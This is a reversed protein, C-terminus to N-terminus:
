WEDPALLTDGEYEAPYPSDIAIAENGTTDSGYDDGSIPTSDGGHGGGIVQTDCSESFQAESDNLLIEMGGRGTTAGYRTEIKGDAQAIVHGKDPCDADHSGTIQVPTTLDVYGNLHSAILRAESSSTYTSSESSLRIRMGQLAAYEEGLQYELAPISITAAYDNWGNFTAETSASGLITIPDDGIRGHLDYTETAEAQTQADNVSVSITYTGSLRLHESFDPVLCNEFLYESRQNNGSYTDEIVLNNNDESCYESNSNYHHPNDIISIIENAQDQIDIIDQFVAGIKEFDDMERIVMPMEGYNNEDLQLPATPPPNGNDSSSDGSGCATILGTMSLALGAKMLPHPTM